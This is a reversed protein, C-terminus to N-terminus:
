LSICPPFAVRLRVQWRNLEKIQRELHAEWEKKKNEGEARQISNPTEYHPSNHMATVVTALADAGDPWGAMRVTESLCTLYNETEYLGFGGLVRERSTPTMQKLRFIASYMQSRWSAIDADTRGLLYFVFYVAAGLAAGIL